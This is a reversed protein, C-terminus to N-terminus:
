QKFREVRSKVKQFAVREADYAYEVHYDFQHELGNSFTVFIFEADQEDVWGILNILISSPKEVSQREWKEADLLCIKVQNITAPLEIDPFDDPQGNKRRSFYLTDPAILKQNSVEAIYDSIARYYMAALAASDLLPTPTRATDPDATKGQGACAALAFAAALLISQIISMM